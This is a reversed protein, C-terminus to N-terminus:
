FLIRVEVGEWLPRTIEYLAKVIEKKKALTCDEWVAWVCYLEYYNDFQRYTELNQSLFYEELNDAIDSPLKEISIAGKGELKHWGRLVTRRSSKEDLRRGLNLKCVDAWAKLM